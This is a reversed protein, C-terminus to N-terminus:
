RYLTNKLKQIEILARPRLKPYDRSFEFIWYDFRKKWLPGVKINNYFREIMSIDNKTNIISNLRIKEMEKQKGVRAKATPSDLFAIKFAYEILLKPNNWHENYISKFELHNKLLEDKEIPTMALFKEIDANNLKIMQDYNSYYNYGYDYYLRIKRFQEVSLELFWDQPERVFEHREELFTSMQQKESKTRVNLLEWVYYNIAMMQKSYSTSASNDINILHLLLMFKLPDNNPLNEIKELLKAANLPFFYQSESEVFNNYVMMQYDTFVSKVPGTLAVRKWFSSGELTLYLDSTSKIKLRFDSLSRAATQENKPLKSIVDDDLNNMYQHINHILKGDFFEQIILSEGEYQEVHFAGTQCRVSENVADELSQQNLAPPIQSIIEYFNIFKSNEHLSHNIPNAALIFSNLILCM